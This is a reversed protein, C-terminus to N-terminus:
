YDMQQWDGWLEQNLLWCYLFPLFGRLANEFDKM